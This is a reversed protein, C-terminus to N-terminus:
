PYFTGAARPPPSPKPVPQGCFNHSGWGQLHQVPSPAAKPHASSEAGESKDWRDASAAAPSSTSHQASCMGKRGKGGKRKGQQSSWLRAQEQQQAQHECLAGNTRDQEPFALNTWPSSHPVQNMGGQTLSHPRPADRDQGPFAFVPQPPQSSGHNQKGKNRFLHQEQPLM